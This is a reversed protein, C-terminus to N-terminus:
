RVLLRHHLIRHDKHTISCHYLGPSLKSIDLSSDVIEKFELCEMGKTDFIKISQISETQTIHLLDDAPNPYIDISAESAEPVSTSACAEANIEIHYYGTDIPNEPAGDLSFTMMIDCCGPITNPWFIQRVIIHSDTPSLPIPMQSENVPPTYTLIQDATLVDWELPCEDSFERKWNVNIDNDTNNKFYLDLSIDNFNDSIDLNEYIGSVYEEELLIVSQAQIILGFCLWFLTLIYKM